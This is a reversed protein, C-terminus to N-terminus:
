LVSINYNGIKSKKIFCQLALGLSVVSDCHGTSDRGFVYRLTRTETNYETTVNDLQLGLTEFYDGLIFLKGSELYLALNEIMKNKSSNSSTWGEIKSYRKKFFDFYASGVGNTEMLGWTCNFRKLVALMKEMIITYDVGEFEELYILEGRNSVIALSSRDTKGVDIGFFCKDYSSVSDIKAKSYNFVGDGADLFEALIEAKYTKAPLTNSMLTLYDSNVYPSVGSPGSFSKTKNVGSVGYTYYEWFIGKKFRPTSIMLVKPKKATAQCPFCCDTICYNSLFAAEDLVLFDITRGRIADPKTGSFYEIISGNFLEIRLKSVSIDKVLATGELHKKLMFFMENSLKYTPGVYVSRSDRNEIAYRLLLFSALFSKGARRGLKAVIYTVMPDKFAEIIDKQLQHPTFEIKIKKSM